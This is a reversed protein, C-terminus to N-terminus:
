CSESEAADKQAKLRCLGKSILGAIERFNQSTWLTKNDNPSLGNDPLGTTSQGNIFEWLRNLQQEPMLDPAEKEIDQNLRQMVDPDESHQVLHNFTLEVPRQTPLENLWKAIKGAAGRTTGIIFAPRGAEFAQLIEEWVGPIVGSFGALKGGIFLHALPTFDFKFNSHDPIDCQIQGCAKKRMASLCLATNLCQEPTIDEKKFAPRAIPNAIGAEQQSVRIFSCTNIWQAEEKVGFFTSYPWASLNFLRSAPAPKVTNTSKRDQEDANRESLLYDLFTGTFNVGVKWAPKTQGWTPLAGGYLLSIGQKFAPRLIARLLEVTHDDSIGANLIDSSDSVSVALVEGSFADEETIEEPLLENCLESDYSAGFAHFEVNGDYIAQLGKREVGSLGHGPHHVIVGQRLGNAIGADRCVHEIMVPDPPRNVLLNVKGETSIIERQAAQALLRYFSSFLIERLMTVVSRRAADETWQLCSAHGLEPITRAIKNGAFSTVVVAPMVSFLFGDWDNKNSICHPRLFDRIEKRCWPRDAYHDGQIVLLGASEAELAREIVDSFGHGYNIDNEDFFTHCQTETQIFHKIQKPIETGDAKAHSLFIKIPKTEKGVVAERLLLCMAETLKTLMIEDDGGGEASLHRIFNLRKVVPPMQYATADLAIPLIEYSAHDPEPTEEAQNTLSEVYRRWPLSAVMNPEVLPVIINLDCGRSLISPNEKPSALWCRFYVPIGEGTSLRFWHYIHRALQLGDKYEAHWLVYIRVPTRIAM